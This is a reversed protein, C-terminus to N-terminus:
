ACLAVKTDELLPEILLRHVGENINMFMDIAAYTSRGEDCVAKALTYMAMRAGDQPTECRIIIQGHPCLWYANAYKWYALPLVLNSEGDKEIRTINKCYDKDCVAVKYYPFTDILEITFTFNNHM